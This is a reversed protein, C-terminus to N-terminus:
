GAINWPFYAQDRAGWVLTSGQIFKNEWSFILFFVYDAKVGIDERQKFVLLNTWLEKEKAKKKM